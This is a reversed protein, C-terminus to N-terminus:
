RTSTSLMSVFQNGEEDTWRQDIRYAIPGGKKLFVGVTRDKHICIVIQMPKEPHWSSKMTFYDHVVFGAILLCCAIGFFTEIKGM